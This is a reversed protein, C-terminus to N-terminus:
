FWLFRRFAKRVAKALNRNAEPTYHVGDYTGNDKLDRVIRSPDIYKTKSINSLGDNYSRIDFGPSNVSTLGPNVGVLVIKRVGVNRLAAIANRVNTLAEVTSSNQWRDNTGIMLVANRVRRSQSRYQTVQTTLDRTSQGAVAFNISTSAGRVGDVWLIGNESIRNNITYPALEPNTVKVASLSDGFVAINRSGFM